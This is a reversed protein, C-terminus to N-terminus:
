AGELYGTVSPEHAREPEAEVRSERRTGRLLEARNGRNKLRENEARLRELEAKLDEDSM